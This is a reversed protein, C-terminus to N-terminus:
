QFILVTGCFRTCLSEMSSCFLIAVPIEIRDLPAAYPRVPSDVFYPIADDSDCYNMGAVHRLSYWPPFCYNM